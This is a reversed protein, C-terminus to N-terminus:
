RRCYKGASASPGTTSCKRISLPLAKQLAFGKVRLKGHRGFDLRLAQEVRMDHARRRDVGEALEVRAREGAIRHDEDGFDDREDHGHKKMRSRMVWSPGGAKEPWIANQSHNVTSNALKASATASPRPLACASARRLVGCRCARWADPRDPLDRVADILPTFASSRRTPSMTSTSAPSMMGPSPSITSPSAETLSLAIVPSDAGTMRSAPPSREATVPPVVTSESWILTRMVAAGPEVKMSRMIASTSPASRCFVGFSSASDIRSEPRVSIKRITQTM